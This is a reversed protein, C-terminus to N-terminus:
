IEGELEARRELSCRSIQERLVEGMTYGPGIKGNEGILPDTPYFHRRFSVRAANGDDAIDLVVYSAFRPIVNETHTRPLSISGPNILLPTSALDDFEYWTEAWVADDVIADVTDADRDWCWLGPLHYHGVAIMRLPTSGNHSARNQMVKEFQWRQAAETKTTYEWLTHDDNASDYQGHAVLFGPLPEMRLALGELFAFHNPKLHKAHQRLIILGGVGFPLNNISSEGVMISTDKGDRIDLVGQDHNGRLCVSGPYRALFRPMADVVQLPQKGYGVLDGLCWLADVIYNESDIELAEIDTAFQRLSQLIGHVDSFIVVIM